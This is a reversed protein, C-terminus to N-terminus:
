KHELMPTLLIRMMNLRPVHLIIIPGQKCLRGASTPSVFIYGNKISVDANTWLIREARMEYGSFRRAFYFCFRFRFQLIRLYLFAKLIM